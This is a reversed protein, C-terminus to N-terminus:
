FYDFDVRRFPYFYITLPLEYMIDTGKIYPLKGPRDALLVNNSVVRKTISMLDTTYEDARPRYNTFCQMGDSINENKYVPSPLLHSWKSRKAREYTDITTNLDTSIAKLCSPTM